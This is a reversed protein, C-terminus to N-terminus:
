SGSAPRTATAAAHREALQAVFERVPKFEEPLKEIARKMNALGAEARGTSFEVYGLLFRLRFDDIVQLRKELDARRGELMEARPIMATLDLQIRAMTDYLRIGTFLYNASTMYDGAGLLAVAEGLLPLPNRPDLTRATEFREAARYYEGNRLLEEAEAMRLNAAGTQKGVLTKMPAQPTGLDVQGAPTPARGGTTDPTEEPPAFPTATDHDATPRRVQGPGVLTGEGQATRLGPRLISDNQEEDDPTTLLPDPRQDLPRGLPDPTLASGTGRRSQAAIEDIPVARVAGFLPSGLLRQNFRGSIPQGNDIRMLQSSLSLANGPTAAGTLPNTPTQIPDPRAAGYPTILQSSGPRNLGAVIAGTNAVTSSPSYYPTRNLSGLPQGQRVTAVSTSDRRFNTLADSPLGLRGGTTLGNFSYTSTGASPINPYGYSRVFLSSPDQIPSYGRFSMGGSVNGSVIRNGAGNYSQRGGYNLGGSGVGQNADLVNGQQLYAQGLAAGEFVTVILTAILTRMTHM